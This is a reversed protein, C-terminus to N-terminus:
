KVKTNKDIEYLFGMMRNKVDQYNEGHENKVTYRNKYVPFLGLFEDLHKGQYIDGPNIERLREDTIISSKDYGITEAVLEATM